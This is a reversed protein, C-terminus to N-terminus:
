ATKFFEVLSNLPPPLPLNGLVAAFFKDQTAGPSFAALKRVLMRFNAETSYGADNGLSKRFNFSDAVLYWLEDMGLVRLMVVFSFEESGKTEPEDAGSVQIANAQVIMGPQGLYPLMSPAVIENRIRAGSVSIISDAAIVKGRGDAFVAHLSDARFELASLRDHPPLQISLKDIEVAAELGQKKMRLWLLSTAQM